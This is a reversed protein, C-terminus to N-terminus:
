DRTKQIKPESPELVFIENLDSIEFYECLKEVIESNYCSTYGRVYRSLTAEPINTAKSIDKQLVKREEIIERLRLRLRAM